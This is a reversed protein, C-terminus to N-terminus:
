TLRALASTIAAAFATDTSQFGFRAVEKGTADILVFTPTGRIGYRAAANRDDDVSKEVFVMEDGFQSATAHAYPEMHECFECWTGSFWVLTPQGDARPASTTPLPATSHYVTHRSGTLVKVDSGAANEAALAVQAPNAESGGGGVRVLFIALVGAAAAGAM